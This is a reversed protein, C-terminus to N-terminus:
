NLKVEGKDGIDGSLVGVLSAASSADSSAMSAGPEESLILLALLTNLSFSLLVTVLRFFCNLLMCTYIYAAESAMVVTLDIRKLQRATM